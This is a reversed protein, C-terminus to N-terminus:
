SGNSDLSRPVVHWLWGAREFEDLAVPTSFLYGQGVVCGAGVLYERQSHDEVGEAVLTLGLERTLSIISRVIAADVANNPLGQVFGRDLKVGDVPFQRLYAMSSYGVGLDDLVIRVGINRLDEIVNRGDRNAALLISETVEVEVANASLEYRQLLIRLRRAFASDRFQQASVNIALRLDCQHEARWRAIQPIALEIVQLGIANILGQDEAVAIFEAPALVGRVPHQWRVLAEVGVLQANAMDVQPQYYVVFERNSVARRLDGIMNVRERVRRELAATFVRYTNRSAAKAAFMAQDAFRLLESYSGADSPYCAVGVSVTVEFQTADVRIPKALERVITAAREEISQLENENLLALVAFEDGGLRGVLDGDGVIARLRRGTAILIQDGFWHGYSDNALKFNDLDVFFLAVHLQLQHARELAEAATREFMARSYQGTLSDTESLSRLRMRAIHADTVDRSYVILGGVAEDDRADSVLSAIYRWSGDKHRHRAIVEEGNFESSALREFEQQYRDRDEEHMTEFVRSGVTEHPRYGLLLYVAESAFRITGDIDCVLTASQSKATLAYYRRLALELAAEANKRPTIDEVTGEYFLVEGREDRVVHANESIWRIETSNPIRVRSEFQAVRGEGFLMGRFVERRGGDVYWNSASSNGLAIAESENAAGIFRILAPNVRLIKGDPAARYAGIALFAFLSSFDHNSPM